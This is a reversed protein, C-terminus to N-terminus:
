RRGRSVREIEERVLREVLVPLNDDLWHRLMPKMMDKVLDELTRTQESLIIDALQNFASQVAEDAPPSLLRRNAAAQDAVRDAAMAAALADVDTSQLRADTDNFSADEAAAPDDYEPANWIPEAEAESEEAAFGTASQDDEEIMNDDEDSLAAEIKDLEAMDMEIDSPERPADQDAEASQEPLPGGEGGSGGGAEVPLDEATKDIGPTADSEPDGVVALHPPGPRNTDGDEAIIKRISALIEEMSPDATAESQAM